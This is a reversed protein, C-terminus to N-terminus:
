VRQQELEIHRKVLHRKTTKNVCILFIEVFAHCISAILISLM